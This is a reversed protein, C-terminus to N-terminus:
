PSGGIQTFTETTEGHEAIAESVEDIRRELEKVYEAPIEFVTVAENAKSVGYEKCFELFRSLKEVQRKAKRLIELATAAEPKGLSHVELLVKAIESRISSYVDFVEVVVCDMAEFILPVKMNDARPRIKLLMDLLLQRKRLKLLQQVMLPSDEANGNEDEVWIAGREDLFAYYRRVFLNFCCTKSLRSHGDSFRSLDFPLRGMKKVGPVRCRVLKHVLMLGKIAVVWSRTKEMRKSLARVFHYLNNPSDRIWELVIEANRRVVTREDHSTAKVIAAVFDHNRHSVRASFYAVVLCKVDEIGAAARRLMSM